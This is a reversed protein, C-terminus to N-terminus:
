GGASRPRALRTLAAVVPALDEPVTATSWRLERATDGHELRLVYTFGDAAAPSPAAGGDGGDGTALERLRARVEEPLGLDDVRGAVEIPVGALGGTRRFRLRLRLDTEPVPTV